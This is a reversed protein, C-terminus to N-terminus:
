ATTWPGSLGLCLLLRLSNSTRQMAIHICIEALDRLPTASFSRGDHCHAIIKGFIDPKGSIM